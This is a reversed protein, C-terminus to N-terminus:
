DRRNLVRLEAHDLFLLVSIILLTVETATVLVHLSRAHMLALEVGLALFIFARDTFCNSARLHGPFSLLPLLLSLAGVLSSIKTQM